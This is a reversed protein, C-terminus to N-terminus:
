LREPAEIGLLDLGRVMVRSTLECLVLRSARLEGTEAALIPCTEYFNSFAVATDYLYTCLRHPQLHGITAEVATPFQALARALAREAPAELSV